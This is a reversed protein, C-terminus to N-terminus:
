WQDKVLSFFVVKKHMIVIRTFTKMSNGNRKIQKANINTPITLRYHVIIRKVFLKKSIQSEMMLSLKTM